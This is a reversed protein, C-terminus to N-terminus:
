YQMCWVQISAIQIFQRKRPDWNDIGKIRLYRIKEPYDFFYEHGAVAAAIDEATNDSRNIATGPPIINGSPRDVDCTQLLVWDPGFNGGQNNPNYTFDPDLAGWVEFKILNGSAYLLNSYTDGDGRQYYKFRTLEYARGMDMTFWQPLPHGDVNSIYASNTCGTPNNWVRNVMNSTSNQVSYDGPFVALSFLSKNAEKESKFLEVQNFITRFTDIAMFDPKFVTSFKFGNNVNFNELLVNEKESPISLTINKGNLDTYAIESSVIGDEANEWDIILYNEEESYYTSQIARDILASRYIEGYAAGIAEVKVSQNGEDDFTYVEFNYTQEELDNLMVKITDIGSTRLIDVKQFSQRNNWYIIASSVTPDSMILWQLEIRYKGPHVQISDAKAPYIIEGGELYKQYNDSMKDCSAVGCLAACIMVIHRIKQHIRISIINKM